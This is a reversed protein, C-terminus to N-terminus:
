YDSGSGAVPKTGVKPPTDREFSRIPPETPLSETEVMKTPVPPRYIRPPEAAAKGIENGIERMARAQPSQGINIAVGFAGLGGVLLAGVVVKDFTFIPGPGVALSSLAAILLAIGGGAVTIWARATDSM